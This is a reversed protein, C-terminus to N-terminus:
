EGSIDFRASIRYHAIDRALDTGRLAEQARALLRWSNESQEAYAHLIRRLRAIESALDQTGPTRPTM